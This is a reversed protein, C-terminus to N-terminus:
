RVHDATGGKAEISITFATGFPSTNDRVMLPLDLADAREESLAVCVLGRGFRVMFNVADSTVAEAAIALDGENERQEDDVLIVFGGSRFREIADDVTVFPPAPGPPLSM